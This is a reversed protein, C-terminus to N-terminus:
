LTSVYVARDSSYGEIGVEGVGGLGACEVQEGTLVGVEVDVGGRTM